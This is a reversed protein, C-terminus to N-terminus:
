FNPLECSYCEEDGSSNNTKKKIKPFFFYFNRTKSLTLMSSFFHQSFTYIFLSVDAHLGRAFPDLTNALRFARKALAVNCHQNTEWHGQPMITFTM